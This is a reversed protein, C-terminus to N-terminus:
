DHRLEPKDFEVNQLEAFVSGVFVEAEARLLLRDGDDSLWVTATKFKRYPVLKSERGIKSLQVNLAIANFSGAAITIRERRAVTATVLYADKAPFVAIRSTSGVALPQSRVHLLATQLDFLNPVGMRKTKGSGRTATVGQADFALATSTQKGRVRESQKVEIPRLTAADATAVHTAEFNWLTRVLDVTRVTGDLVLRNSANSTRVDATAATIGSWGFRYTAHMSRPAPFAGPTPPSLTAQWDQAFISAALFPVTAVFVLRRYLARVRWDDAAASQPAVAERPIEPGIPFASVFFCM